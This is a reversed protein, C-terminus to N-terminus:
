ITKIKVGIQPFSGIQSINKLHTSVVLWILINMNLNLNPSTSFQTIKKMFTKPRQDMLIKGGSLNILNLSMNKNTLKSQSTLICSTENTTGIFLKPRLAFKDM